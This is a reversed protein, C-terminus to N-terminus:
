RHCCASANIPGVLERVPAHVKGAADAEAFPRGAGHDVVVDQSCPSCPAPARGPSGSGRSHSDLSQDAEAEEQDLDDVEGIRLLRTSVSRVPSSVRGLAPGGLSLAQTAEQRRGAPRVDRGGDPCRVTRTSSYARISVAVFLSLDLASRRRNEILSVRLVESKVPEM